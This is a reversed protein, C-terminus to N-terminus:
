SVKHQRGRPEDGVEIGLPTSCSSLGGFSGSVSGEQVGCTMIEAALESLWARSLATGVASRM